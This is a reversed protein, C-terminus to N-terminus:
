QTAALTRGDPSLAIQGVGFPIPIRRRPKIEPTTDWLQLLGYNAADGSNVGGVALMKGDRSYVVGFVAGPQAMRRLEKGSAMDWLRITKDESGTVLLQGNPSLA